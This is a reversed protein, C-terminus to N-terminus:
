LHRDSSARAHVSSAKRLVDDVAMENVVGQDVSGCLLGCPRIGCDLRRHCRSRPASVNPAVHVASGDVNKTHRDHEAVPLNSKLPSSHRALNSESLVPDFERNPADVDHRARFFSPFCSVPRGSSAISGSCGAEAGDDNERARQEQGVQVIQVPRRNECTSEERREDGAASSHRFLVCLGSTILRNTAANRM